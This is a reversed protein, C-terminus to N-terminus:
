TKRKEKEGGTNIKSRKFDTKRGEVLKDTELSKHDDAVKAIKGGFAYFVLHICPKPVIAICDGPFGAGSHSNGADAGLPAEGM